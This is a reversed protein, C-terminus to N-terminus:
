KLKLEPVRVTNEPQLKNMIDAWEQKISSPIEKGEARLDGGQKELELRRAELKKAEGTPLKYGKDRGQQHWDSQVEELHLSKKGDITRDNMRVHALINPEDWHYSKYGAEPMVFERREKTLVNFENSLKARQEAINVPAKELAELLNLDDFEDQIKNIRKEIERARIKATNYKENPMTLLMERYNEGGPLQYSHYKTPQEQTLRRNNATQIYRIRDAQSLESWVHGHSQALDQGNM